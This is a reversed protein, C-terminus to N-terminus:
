VPGSLVIMRTLPVVAVATRDNSWGPSPWKDIGIMLTLIASFRVVALATRDNSWGPSTMCRPLLTVNGTFENVINPWGSRRSTTSSQRSTRRRVRVNADLHIHKATILGWFVLICMGVGFVVCKAGFNFVPVHWFSCMKVSLFMVVQSIRSLSSNPRVFSPCSTRLLLFFFAYPSAFNRPTPCGTGGSPLSGGDGIRGKPTMFAWGQRVLLLLFCLVHM